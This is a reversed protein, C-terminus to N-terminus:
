TPAAVSSNAKGPMEHRVRFLASEVQDPTTLDEFGLSTLEAKMPEFIEKPYM